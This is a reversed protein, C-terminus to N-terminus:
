SCFPSFTVPLSFGINVCQQALVMITGNAQERPKIRSHYKSLTADGTRHAIFLNQSKKKKKVEVPVMLNFIRGFISVFPIVDSSTDDRQSLDKLTMREAKKSIESETVWLLPGILCQAM